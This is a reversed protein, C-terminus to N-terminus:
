DNTFNGIKVVANRVQATIWKASPHSIVKLANEPSYELVGEGEIFEKGDWDWGSICAAYQTFEASVDVDAGLVAAINGEKTVKTAAECDIHKVMFRVGLSDGTKPHKLDLPFEREYAVIDAIAGM